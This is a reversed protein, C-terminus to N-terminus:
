IEDDGGLMSLVDDTLARNEVRIAALEEDTIDRDEARATAILTNYKQVAMLANVSVSLLANATDIALVITAPNAIM